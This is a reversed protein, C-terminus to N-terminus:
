SAAGEVALSAGAALAAHAELFDKEREPEFEAGKERHVYIRLFPEAEAVEGLEFFLVRRGSREHVEDRSRLYRFRDLALHWHFAPTIANMYGHAVGYAGFECLSEFVSPGCISIVRLPGLRGLLDFFRRPTWPDLGADGQVQLCRM